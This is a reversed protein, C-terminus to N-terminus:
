VTLLPRVGGQVRLWNETKGLSCLSRLQTNKSMRLPGFPHYGPALHSDSFPSLQPSFPHRSTTLPAPQSTASNALASLRLDRDDDSITALIPTTNRPTRQSCIPAFRLVRRDTSKSIASVAPASCASQQAGGQSDGLLQVHGRPWRREPLPVPAYRM